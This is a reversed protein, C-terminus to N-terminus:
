KMEDLSISPPRHKVNRLEDDTIYYSSSLPSKMGQHTYNKIDKEAYPHDQTSFVDSQNLSEEKKEEHEKLFEAIKQKYDISKRALRYLLEKFEKPSLKKGQQIIFDLAIINHYDAVMGLGFLIDDLTDDDTAKSSMVMNMVDLIKEKNRTIFLKEFDKELENLHYLPSTDNKACFLTTSYVIALLPIFIKM